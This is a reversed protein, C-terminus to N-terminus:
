NKKKNELKRGCSFFDTSKKTIFIVDGCGKYVIYSKKNM